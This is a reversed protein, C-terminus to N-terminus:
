CFPSSGLSSIKRKSKMIRLNGPGEKSFRAYAVSLLEISQFSKQIKPILNNM